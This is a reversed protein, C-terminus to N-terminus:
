SATAAAQSIEAKTLFRGGPGRPRRVAHRHRSEHLYPKKGEEDLGDGEKGAQDRSQMYALFDKKRQEEIRARTARRKLIRQYQKANVYLPEDETPAADEEIGQSIEPKSDVADDHHVTVSLGLDSPGVGLASAHYGFEDSGVVSQARSNYVSDPLPQATASGHYPSVHSAEPPIGPGFSSWLRSHDASAVHSSGFDEPDGANIWATIDTDEPDAHYSAISHHFDSAPSNANSLASPIRPRTRSRSSSSLRSRPEEEARTRKRARPRVNGGSGSDDDFGLASATAPHLLDSASYPSGIHAAESRMSASNIDWPYKQNAFSSHSDAGSSHTTANSTVGHYSDAPSNAWSLRGSNSFAAVSASSSSHHDAGPSFHQHPTSVSSPISDLHHHPHPHHSASPAHNSQSPTPHQIYFAGFSLPNQTMNSSASTPAGLHTASPSGTYPINIGGPSTPHPSSSASHHSIPEYLHSYSQM